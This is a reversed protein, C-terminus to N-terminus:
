AQKLLLLAKLHLFSFYLAGLALLTSGVLLVWSTESYLANLVLLIAFAAYLFVKLLLKGFGEEKLLELNSKKPDPKFNTFQTCNPLVKKHLEHNMAFWVGLGIIPALFLGFPVFEAVIILAILAIAHRMQLMKFKSIQEEGIRYGIKSKADYHIYQGHRDQYITRGSLRIQQKNM